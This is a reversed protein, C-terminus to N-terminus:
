CYEWGGALGNDSSIRLIQQSEGGQWGAVTTIKGNAEAIPVPLGFVGDLFKCLKEFL